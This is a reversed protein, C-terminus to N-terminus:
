WLYGHSDVQFSRSGEGQCELQFRYDTVTTGCWVFAGVRTTSQYSGLIPRIPARHRVIVTFQNVKDEDAADGFAEHWMSVAHSLTWLATPFPIYAYKRVSALEDQDYAEIHVDKAQLSTWMREAWIRPNDAVHCVYAGVSWVLSPHRVSSGDQSELLRTYRDPVDTILAAAAEMPTSWDFGCERCPNGYIKTGWTDM